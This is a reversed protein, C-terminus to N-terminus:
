KVLVTLVFTEAPQVGQEWPRRYEMSIESTGKKLAKFTW